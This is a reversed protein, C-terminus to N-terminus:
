RPAIETTGDHAQLQVPLVQPLARTFAGLQRLDFSGNIRMAAVAPDRLRLRTPGYREFEAVAQALPTNEFNVRGERWLMANAPAADAPPRLTGDTGAAIAGGPGLLVPQGAATPDIPAVRVRGEQVTVRVDDAGLGAGTNRVSFRTGVVTVRVPGALVDFPRGADHQVTFLAQGQPLRVERRQRYLTVEARTATDLVLRSGDPLQVEMQQGRATAFHQSYVPQAQWHSWGMWGAVMACALGVMAALPVWRPRAAQPRGAARVPPRPQLAAVQAASLRDLGQWTGALRAIAARHAPTQALWAQFAAEEAPALGDQRRVMWGAAAVDVPDQAALFDAHERAPAEGEFPPPAPRASPPANM